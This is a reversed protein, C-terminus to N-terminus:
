AMWATKFFKDYLEVIIKQKGEANDVGDCREKVSQYFRDLQEQDKAMGDEDLLNLIRQMAQSVTNNNVFSYNEFLAEFVPKTILHQALMEIADEDKIYPNINTHLPLNM